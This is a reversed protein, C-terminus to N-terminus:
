ACIHLMEGVHESIKEGIERAEVKSTLGPPHDLLVRKDLDFRLNQQQPEGDVAYRVLALPSRANSIDVSVFEIHDGSRVHFPSLDLTTFRSMQGSEQIQPVSKNLDTARLDRSERERCSLLNLVLNLIRELTACTLAKM